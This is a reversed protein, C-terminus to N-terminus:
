ICQVCGNIGTSLLTSPKHYQFSYLNYKISVGVWEYVSSKGNVEFPLMHLQGLGEGLAPYLESLSSPEIWAMLVPQESQEMPRTSHNYGGDEGLVLRMMHDIARMSPSRSEGDVSVDSSCTVNTKFPRNSTWARMETMKEHELFRICDDYMLQCWEKGLFTSQHFVSSLELSPSPLFSSLQLQSLDGFFEESESPPLALPPSSLAKFQSLKKALIHVSEVVHRAFSEQIIQPILVTQTEEDMYSGINSGRRKVGELVSTASDIIKKYNLDLLQWKILESLNKPLVLLSEVTSGPFLM